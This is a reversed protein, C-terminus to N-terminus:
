SIMQESKSLEYKVLYPESFSHNSYTTNFEGAQTHDTRTM